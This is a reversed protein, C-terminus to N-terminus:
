ARMGTQNGHEDINDTVYHLFIGQRFGNATIGLTVDIISQGHSVVAIHREPRERLWRRLRRARAILADREFAYRGVKRYWYPSRWCEALDVWSACDHELRDTPHGTDSPNDTCEQADPLALIKAPASHGLAPEFSARATQLTRRLPSACVLDLEHHHKFADRFATCQDIGHPTLDPDHIFKNLAQPELDHYGQAHRVLHIIPPM